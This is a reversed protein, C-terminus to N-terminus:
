PRAELTAWATAGARGAVKVDFAHCNEQLKFVKGPKIPKGGILVRVRKVGRGPYVRVVYGRPPPLAPRDPIEFVYPERTEGVTARESAVYHRGDSKYEKGNWRLVGTGLSVGCRTRGSYGTWVIEPVGDGDLDPTNSGGVPAEAIKVLKEGRVRFVVAAPPHNVAVEVVVNRQDVLPLFTVGYAGSEPDFRDVVKGKGRDRDPLRVLLIEGDSFGIYRGVVVLRPRGSRYRSYVGVGDPRVDAIALRKRLADHDDARVSVAVIFLLLVLSRKM